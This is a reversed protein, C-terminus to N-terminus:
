RYVTAQHNATKAVLLVRHVGSMASVFWKRYFLLSVISKDKDTITFM